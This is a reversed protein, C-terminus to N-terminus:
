RSSDTINNTPLEMEHSIMHIYTSRTISKYINIRM